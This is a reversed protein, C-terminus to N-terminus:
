SAPSLLVDEKKPYFSHQRIKKGSQCDIIFLTRPENQDLVLIIEFLIYHSINKKMWNIWKLCYNEEYLLLLLLSILLSLNEDQNVHLFLWLIFYRGKEVVCFLFLVIHESYLFVIIFLFFLLYTCALYWVFCLGDNMHIHKVM